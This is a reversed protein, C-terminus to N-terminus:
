VSPAMAADIMYPEGRNQRARGRRIEYYFYSCMGAFVLFPMSMMFIISWFYGQVMAAHNPDNAMGEACTPCAVAVSQCCLWILCVVAIVAAHRRLIGTSKFM